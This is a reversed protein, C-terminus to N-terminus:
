TLRTHTKGHDESFVKFDRNNQWMPHGSAESQDIWEEPGYTLPTLPEYRMLRSVLDTVISASMGSHGQSAFLKIIELSATGLMGDYDSDKDFLGTLTLERHAYGVLPSEEKPQEVLHTNIHENGPHDYSLTCFAQGGDPLDTVFSGCTKIYEQGKYSIVNGEGDTFCEPGIVVFDQGPGM